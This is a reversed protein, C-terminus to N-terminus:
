LEHEVNGLDLSSGVLVLNEIIQRCNEGKFYNFNTSNILYIFTHVQPDPSITFVSNQM